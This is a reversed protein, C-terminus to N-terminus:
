KKITESLEKIIKLATEVNVDKFETKRQFTEEQQPREMRSLYSSIMSDITSNMREVSAKVDISLRNSTLLLGELYHINFLEETLRNSLASARNKLILLVWLVAVFVPIPFYYPLYQFWHDLLLGDSFIRKYFLFAWIGLFSAVVILFTCVCNYERNVTKREKEIIKTHKTLDNFATKIRYDVGQEMLNTEKAKNNDERLTTIRDDLTKLSAKLQSLKEKDLKDEKAEEAEIQKQTSIRADRLRELESVITKSSLPVPVDSQSSLNIIHSVFKQLDLILGILKNKQDSELPSSTNVLLSELDNIMEFLDLSADVVIYERNRQKLIDIAKPILKQLNYQQINVSSLIDSFNPDEVISNLQELVVIVAETLLRRKM